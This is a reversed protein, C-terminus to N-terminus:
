TMGVPLAASGQMFQVQVIAVFSTWSLLCAATCRGPTSRDASIICTWSVTEYTNFITAFAWATINYPNYTRNNANYRGAAFDLQGYFAGGGAGDRRFVCHAATLVADTGVLSGSCVYAGNADTLQLQGIATFPFTSSPCVTMNAVTTPPSPSSTSALSTTLNGPATDNGAATVVRGPPPSTQLSRRPALPAAQRLPSGDGRLLRRVTSFLGSMFGQWGGGSRAPQPQTEQARRRHATPDFFPLGPLEGCVDVDDELIVSEDADAKDRGTSPETNSDSESGEDQGFTSYQAATKIAATLAALDYDAAYLLGDRTIRLARVSQSVASADLAAYKQQQETEQQQQQQSDSPAGKNPKSNPAAHHQMDVVGLLRFGESVFMNMDEPLIRRSASLRRRERSSSGASQSLPEGSPFPPPEPSVHTPLVVTALLRGTDVRRRRANADEHEASVVSCRVTM